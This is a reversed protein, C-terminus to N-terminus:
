GLYGFISLKPFVLDFIEVRKGIGLCKVKLFPPNLCPRLLRWLPRDGGYLTAVTWRGYFLSIYCVTVVKKPPYYCMKEDKGTIGTNGELM